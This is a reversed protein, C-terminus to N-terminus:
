SCQQEGREREARHRQRVADDQRRHHRAQRALVADDVVVDARTVHAVRLPARPEDDDLRHRHMLRLAPREQADRRVLEHRPEGLERLQAVVRPRPLHDRLDDVEQLDRPAAPPLRDVHEARLVDVVDDIGVAGRGHPRARAPEVADLEVHRVRVRQRREERAQIRPAVRVAPRELVAETEGHAHDLAHARRDAVVEGDPM